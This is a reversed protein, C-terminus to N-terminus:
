TCQGTLNVYDNVYGLATFRSMPGRWRLGAEANWSSEPRTEEPEGPPAPSFGRHIGTFVATSPSVDVLLGLGPLVITRHTWDTNVADERRTWISEVRVGPVVHLAGTILDEQVFAAIARSWARGDVNVRTPADDRVMEGNRMQFPDETHFRYIEDAHLRIGADFRSTASGIRNDVTLRSQVGSSRFSRDNTGILLTQDPSTSDEDGRLIALFVASQGAVPQSLLRHVDVPADFRNFKTWARQLGHHYATTDLRVNDVRVPIRLEALWRQWRMLANASAAYRRYPDEDYDDVNLGLYTELSREGSWGLKLEIAQTRPGREASRWRAKMMIEGRDFGTRGGGDLRKFGQTRLGVAELLVGFHQGQTGAYAHLKGTRRLGGALDLFAEPGNPIDRSLLNVAGGVTSPGNQISAPGKSVEVGTIRTVMPFYYAAPASYPAPGLLVGDETLTVKSSRDSNVGRIGINPRLGFGDEERITVGPVQGLVAGIDDREFQTLQDEGVVSVSGPTEWEARVIMRADPEVPEEDDPSADDGDQALAPATVLLLGLGAASALSGPARNLARAWAKLPGVWASWLTHDHNPEIVGYRDPPVTAPEFTGGLQDWVSLWTGYNTRDHGVAHHLQHQAPSVFVRELRGFPMWVHSHRLNGFVLNFGFGLAHVGGLTWITAADRFLWFFLASSVATVIWGRLGYLLSELPHIRHFTLPTMVEASHHVQHLQWLAPVHHMLRHLVYRSADWVVFLFATYLAVVLWGPVVDG